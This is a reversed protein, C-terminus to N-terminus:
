PEVGTSYRQPCLPTMRESTNVKGIPGFHVVLEKSITKSCGATWSGGTGMVPCTREYKIYLSWLQALLKGFYKSYDHISWFCSLDKPIQRLLPTWGKAEHQLESRLLVFWAVKRWLGVQNHLQRARKTVRNLTFCNGGKQYTGCCEKIQYYYMKNNYAAFYEM